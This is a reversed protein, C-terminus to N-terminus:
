VSIEKSSLSASLVQSGVIMRGAGYPVPNGQTVTNVAGNFIFSPKSDPKEATKPAEAPKFLLQSVGGLVLSFGINGAIGALSFSKGFLTFAGASPFAFSAAILAGGLIIKGLGDSGAVVPVIRITEKDSVPYLTQESELSQKGGVLVRYANGDLLAQKFGKFNASLARVAEAPSNVACRHVRGFRKGLFGYLMITKM